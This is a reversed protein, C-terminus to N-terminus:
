GNWKTRAGNLGEGPHTRGVNHPENGGAVIGDASKEWATLAPQGVRLWFETARSKEFPVHSVERPLCMDKLVYTGLKRVCRLSPYLVKDQQASEDRHTRRMSSKQVDGRVKATGRRLLAAEKRFM